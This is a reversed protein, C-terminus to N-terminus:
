YENTKRDFKGHYKLPHNKRYYSHNRKGRCNKCIYESRALYNKTTNIGMELSVKCDRCYERPNSRLYKANPFKRHYYSRQLENMHDRNESVWNRRIEPNVLSYESNYELVQEYNERRYKKQSIRQLELRRKKQEPSERARVIVLERRFNGQFDM